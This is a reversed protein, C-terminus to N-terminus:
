PGLSVWPKIGAQYSGAIRTFLLCCLLGFFLWSLQLFCACFIGGGQMHLPQFFTPCSRSSLTELMLLGWCRWDSPCVTQPSRGPLSQSTHVCWDRLCWSFLLSFRHMSLAACCRGAYNQLIEPYKLLYPPVKPHVLVTCDTPLPTWILMTFVRRHKSLGRHLVFELSVGWVDSFGLCM